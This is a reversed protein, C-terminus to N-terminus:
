LTLLRAMWYTSTTIFTSTKDDPSWGIGNGCIVGSEMQHLSGDPHYRWLRGKPKYDPPVNGPGM